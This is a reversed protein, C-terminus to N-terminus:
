GLQIKQYKCYSPTPYGKQGNISYDVIQYESERERIPWPLPQKNYYKIIARKVAHWEKTHNNLENVVQSEYSKWNLVPNPNDINIQYEEEPEKELAQIRRMTKWKANIYNEAAQIELERRNISPYRLKTGADIEKQTRGEEDVEQEYEYIIKWKDKNLKVDKLAAMIKSQRKFHPNLAMFRRDMIGLLEEHMYCERWLDHDETTRDHKLFYDLTYQTYEAKRDNPETNLEAYIEKLLLEYTKKNTEMKPNDHISHYDM